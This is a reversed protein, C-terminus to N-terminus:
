AGAKMPSSDPVGFYTFCLGLVKLLLGFSFHEMSKPDLHPTLTPLRLSAYPKGFTM